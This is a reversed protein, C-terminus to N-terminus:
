NKSAIERLNALRARSATGMWNLWQSSSKIKSTHGLVTTLDSGVKETTRKTSPHWISCGSWFNRVIMGTEPHVAMAREPNGDLDYGICYGHDSLTVTDAPTFTHDPHFSM